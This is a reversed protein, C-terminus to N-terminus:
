PKVPVTLRLTLPKGAPAVPVNLGADTVEPSEVSVTVVLLVVGVPLKGNVIVPVLPVVVWVAETVRTTVAGTTPSKETLAVGAEWVTVAPFPVDYVAVTVPEPPNAPATLRLALPNGAPALALKLGAETVPDPEEVM